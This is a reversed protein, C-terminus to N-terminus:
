PLSGLVESQRSPLARVNVKDGRTIGAQGAPPLAFVTSSGAALALMGIYYISASKM